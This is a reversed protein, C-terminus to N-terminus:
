IDAQQQLTRKHLDIHALVKDIVTKEAIGFNSIVFRTHEEIHLNHDDVPLITANAIDVNENQARDIHLQTIDQANDWNGFGMMSLIKAKASETLKGDKNYLIGANLLDFLMTRRTAPTDTLQNETEFVVDDSGIDSGKFYFIEAGKQSDVFRMLKSNTVFQKYLRLIYKSLKKICLKVSDISSALRTDDQEAILQLAVGSTVTTPTTSNRAFESVGSVTVFEQLLRDEEQNFDHPVDGADMLSPKVSGQRYVLIKGPSLGEEELNDLDVSGDEVTMVGMALRNLFEHKRNKVANYARQIPIIRDVISAGWFCGPQETSTQKVFPFTRENDEGLLFPMEGYYLLTDGAVIELKGNPHEATPKTYRELVLVQNSKQEQSISPVTSNYGLGGVGAVSNINFVKIDQGRVDVGWTNKVDTADYVKAHIISSCQEVTQTVNSDPYIEFPSCAIIKVDSKANDWAIKYFATGCVESWSTVETVIEDLRTKDHVSDLIKTSLKASAIDKDSNSFPRAVPKPRVRNLRALRTEVIPAIHNYVQKEQWFYYKEEQEIAGRPSIACYQNGMVFNMNLQWALEYPRRFNQRNQFDQKVDAVVDEAFRQQQLAREKATLKKSM